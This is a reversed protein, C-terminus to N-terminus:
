EKENPTNKESQILEMPTDCCKLQGGGIEVIKVTNGCISCKYIQDLEIM